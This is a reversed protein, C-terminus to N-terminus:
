KWFAGPAWQYFYGYHGRLMERGYTSGVPHSRYDAQSVTLCVRRGEYMITLYYNFGTFRTQGEKQDIVPGAVYVPQEEGLLANALMPYGVLVYTGLWGLLMPVIVLWLREGWHKRWARTRYALIWGPVTIPLWMYISTFNKMWGDATCEVDILIMAVGSFSAFPLFIRLFLADDDAGDLDKSKFRAWFGRWTWKPKPLDDAVPETM